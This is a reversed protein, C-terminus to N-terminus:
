NKKNLKNFNLNASEISELLTPEYGLEKSKRIIASVDKPLCKGDFGRKNSFVSTNARGIRRDLLWGERVTHWDIELAKAISYFENVFTVKMALFSNVMYKILEAETASCQYYVCGPGLIPELLEIIKIRNKDEGGIVQFSTSEMSQYSHFPTEGIYEPSFCINKKYKNSLKETTGPEVTSKILILPTEIRKVAEEVISIDCSGDKDQPTPVCVVALDADDIENKPYTTNIQPDYIVLDCNDEILRAFAKGVYGYGIIAVKM